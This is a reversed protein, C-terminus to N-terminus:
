RQDSASRREIARVATTVAHYAHRSARGMDAIAEELQEPYTVAPDYVVSGHQAELRVDATIVGATTLLANRVRRACTPCGMGRITLYAVERPGDAQRHPAPAVPDVHCDDHGSIREQCNRQGRNMNADKRPTEFPAPREVRAFPSMGHRRHSRSAHGGPAPLPDRGNGDPHLRRPHNRRRATPPEPRTQRARRNRQLPQVRPPHVRPPRPPWAQRRHHRPRLRGKVAVAIQQVGDSEQATVGKTRGLWFYRVIWAIATLGLLNVTWATVGKGFAPFLVGAAIPIGVTNYIFAGFLNLKANRMTARSTEIASAVGELSGSMLNVDTAETAVNTGTGHDIASVLAERPAKRQDHEVVAEHSVLHVRASAVGPVATLVMEITAACPGCTMGAVPLRTTGITSSGTRVPTSDM